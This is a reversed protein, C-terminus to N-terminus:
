IWIGGPVLRARVSAITCCTIGMMRSVGPTDDAETYAPMPPPLKLLAVFAPWIKAIKSGNSSRSGFPSVSGTIAASSRLRREPMVAASIRTTFGAETRPM